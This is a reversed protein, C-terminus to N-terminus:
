QDSDIRKQIRASFLSVAVLIYRSSSLHSILVLLILFRTSNCVKSKPTSCFPLYLSILRASIVSKWTCIHTQNMSIPARQVTTQILLPSSRNSARARPMLRQRYVTRDFRNSCRMCTSGLPRGLIWDITSM